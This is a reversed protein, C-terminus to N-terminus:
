EHQAEESCPHEQQLLMIAAQRDTMGHRKAIDRLRRRHDFSLMRVARDYDDQIKRAHM